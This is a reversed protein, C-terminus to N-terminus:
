LKRAQNKTPALNGGNKAAMSVLAISLLGTSFAMRGIAM